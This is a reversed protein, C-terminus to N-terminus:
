APKQARIFSNADPLVIREFDVFGAETLWDKHEQETYAGGQHFTNLFVLSIGVMEPPSQRSNDLIVGRIYIVGSPNLAQYVHTLTRRVEDPSLTQIVASLVAVDFTGPLTYNVVDATLVSVRETAKAEEIFCQTIPTVTPLDVVTAHIQPCAETVSLALGGSGGGIDVLTNVSSLDYRATM